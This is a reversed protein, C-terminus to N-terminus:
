QEFVVDRTGQRRERLDLLVRAARDPEIDLGETLLKFVTVDSIAAEVCGLINLAVKQASKADLQLRVNASMIEIAPGLVEADQMDVNVGATSSKMGVLSYCTVGHEPGLHPRRALVAGLQMSYREVLDAKAGVTELLAIAERASILHEM